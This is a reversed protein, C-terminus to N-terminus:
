FANWPPFICYYRGYQYRLCDEEELVVNKQTKFDELTVLNGNQDRLSFAPAKDGVSLLHSAGSRNKEM